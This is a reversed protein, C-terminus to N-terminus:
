PSSLSCDTHYFKPSIIGYVTIQTDVAVAAEVIERLVHMCNPFILPCSVNTIRNCTGQILKYLDPAM